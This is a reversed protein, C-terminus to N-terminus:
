IYISIIVFGNQGNSNIEGGQGGNEYNGIGYDTMSQGNISGIGGTMGNGGSIENGPFGGLVTVLDNTINEISYSLITSGGQSGIGGGEGIICSYKIKVDPIILLNITKQYGSGGQSNLSGGGGGGCLTIELKAPGEINDSDFIVGSKNYIFTSFNQNGISLSSIGFSNVNDILLWEDDAKVYYNGTNEDLYTSNNLGLINNPLGKGVLSM